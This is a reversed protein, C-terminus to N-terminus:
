LAVGKGGKIMKSSIIQRPALSLVVLLFVSVQRYFKMHAKRAKMLPQVSDQFSGWIRNTTDRILFHTTQQPLPIEHMHFNFRM